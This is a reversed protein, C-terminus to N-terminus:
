YPEVNKSLNNMEALIKIKDEATMSIFIWLLMISIVIIFTTQLIGLGTDQNLNLEDQETGNTVIHDTDM